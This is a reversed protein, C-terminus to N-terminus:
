GEFKLKTYWEYIDCGTEHWDGNPFKYYRYLPHNFARCSCFPQITELGCNECRYSIQGNKQVGMGLKISKCKPCRKLINTFLENKM